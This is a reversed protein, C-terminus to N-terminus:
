GPIRDSLSVNLTKILESNNENEGLKWKIGQPSSYLSRGSYEKGDFKGFGCCRIINLGFKGSIQAYKELDQKYDSFDNKGLIVSHIHFLLEIKEKALESFFAENNFDEGIFVGFRIGNLIYIYEGSDIDSVSSKVSNKVNSYDVLNVDKVLPASELVAGESKRFYSGGLVIGKHYESVELVADLHEKEYVPDKGKFSPYYRPLILFDAREKVIKNRQDSSIPESLNKQVIIVKIVSM